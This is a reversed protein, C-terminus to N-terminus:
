AAGRRTSSIRLHYTKLQELEQCGHQIPFVCHSTWQGMQLQPSRTAYSDQSHREIPIGLKEPAASGLSEPQQSSYLPLRMRKLAKRGSSELQEYENRQAM